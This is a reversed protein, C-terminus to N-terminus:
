HFLALVDIDEETRDGEHVIDALLMSKGEDSEDEDNTIIVSIIYLAKVVDLPQVPATLRRMRNLAQRRQEAVIVDAHPLLHEVQHGDYVVGLHVQKALYGSKM